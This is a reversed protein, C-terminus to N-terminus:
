SYERACTLTVRKLEKYTELKEYSYLAACTGRGRHFSVFFVVRGRTPTKSVGLRLGTVVEGM